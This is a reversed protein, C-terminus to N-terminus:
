PRHAGGVAAEAAVHGGGAMPAAVSAGMRHDPGRDGLDRASSRPPPHLMERMGPGGVPGENRIVWWM